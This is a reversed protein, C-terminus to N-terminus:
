HLLINSLLTFTLLDYTKKNELIEFSEKKNTLYYRINLDNFFVLKLSGEPLKLISAVFAKVFLGVLSKDM